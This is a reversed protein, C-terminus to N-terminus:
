GGPAAAATLATRVAGRFAPGWPGQGAVVFPSADISEYTAPDTVYAKACDDVSQRLRDFTAGNRFIYVYLRTPKPQDLGSADFGIATRGLDVDNCGPDGSVIHDVHIGARNLISQITPFDAPTPAPETGTLAGCGVITAASVAVLVARRVLSRSGPFM